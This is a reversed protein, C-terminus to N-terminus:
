VKKRTRKKLRRRSNTLRTSDTAETRNKTDRPIPESLPLRIETTRLKIRLELPGALDCELDFEGFPSTLSEVLVRTGRVLIVPAVGVIEDPNVSSLVQGVVAVKDSDPQAEIQIDIRYDGGVGYLLHRPSTGSSRVGAPLPSRSSDFLLEAIARIGRSANSRGHTAFTGKMSRVASEPPQYTQEQRAAVKVRQWLDLIRSCKKCRDNDLHSQMQAREQEGIVQRVFDAWKELSYHEMASGMFIENAWAGGVPASQPGM